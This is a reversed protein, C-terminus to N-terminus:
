FYFNNGFDDSVLGKGAEKIDIRIESNRCYQVFEEIFEDVNSSGVFTEMNPEVHEEFFCQDFLLERFEGWASYDNNIFRKFVIGFEAIKKSAESEPNHIGVSWFPILCMRFFHMFDYRNM